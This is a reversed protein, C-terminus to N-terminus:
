PTERVAESAADGGLSEEVARPLVLVDLTAQGRGESFDPDFVTYRVVELVPEASDEPRDLTEARWWWREAIVGEGERPWVAPGDAQEAADGLPAAMRWRALQGDLARVASLRREAGRWQQDFRGKALVSAGLLSGLLALSAVVEVLTM